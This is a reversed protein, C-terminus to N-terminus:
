EIRKVFEDEFEENGIMLPHGDTDLMRNLWAGIDLDELYGDWEESFYDELRNEHSLYIVRWENDKARRRFAFFDGQVGFSAFRVIRYPLRTEDRWQRYQLEKAVAEHPPLIRIVEKLALVGFSVQSYFAEAWDPLSVGFHSSFISTDAGGFKVLHRVSARYPHDPGDGAEAVMRWGTVQEANSVQANLWTNASEMCNIWDSAAEYTREETLATKLRNIAYQTSDESAPM